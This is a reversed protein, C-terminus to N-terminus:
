GAAIEEIEGGRLHITEDESLQYTNGSIYKGTWDNKQDFPDRLVSSSPCIRNSNNNKNDHWCKVELSRFCFCGCVFV